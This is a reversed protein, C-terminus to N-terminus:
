LHTAYHRTLMAADSQLVITTAAPHHATPNVSPDPWMTVHRSIRRVRIQGESREIIDPSESRLQEEYKWGCGHERVGLHVRVLLGQMDWRSGEVRGAGDVTGCKGYM